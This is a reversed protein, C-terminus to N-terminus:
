YGNIYMSWEEDTMNDRNRESCGWCEGTDADHDIRSSAVYKQGCDCMGLETDDYNAAM